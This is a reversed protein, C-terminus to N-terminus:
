LKNYNNALVIKWDFKVTNNWNKYYVWDLNIIRDYNIICNWINVSSKNLKIWEKTSKNM